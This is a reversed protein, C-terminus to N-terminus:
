LSKITPVNYRTLAQNLITIILDNYTNGSQKYIVVLDSYDDVLGPLPNIEIFYPIDTNDEIRLDIRAVDKCDLVSFVKKAMKNIIKTLKPSINAPCECFISTASEKKVRYSYVTETGKDTFMIEMIPLVTIDNGNGIMGVTFERGRIYEEVLVNCNYKTIMTDIKNYLETENYALSLDSIGKSSGEANPKIILPFGFKKNLKEKSSNFLQFKPTHIKESMIVRKTLAKDLAIGLTTEDSGTFPINLLNMLAPIQAERGRGKLGEAINFVIDVPNETLSTVINESAEMLIVTSGTSEIASKIQMVTQLDDLDAEDDENISKIGTKLNYTLGVTLSKIDNM